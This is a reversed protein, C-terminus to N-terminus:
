RDNIGVRGARRMALEIEYINTENYLKEKQGGLKVSRLYSLRTNQTNKIYASKIYRNEPNVTTYILFENELIELPRLNHSTFILQGKAKEQMVELCEGLLYEYIGSDLEDVVLCYSERNFCAVLNSCISILKKIGASEYLLPIRAGGRLTIIEFQIGDKGNELLKDFANYIELQIEPILAQMVINIQKITNEVYPYIEKAVVNIDTLRLMIGSIRSRVSDSWGINVPIMDLNLALLAYYENEIVSLDYIGYNQLISSYRFIKAADDEAKAFEEQAKRSFLFSGVETRQMEENFYETAQQAIGLAVMSEMNNEYYRYFKKPHFLEKEGRQYDFVPVLRTTKGEVNERVSLKEKSICFSFEGNKLLEVEYEVYSKGFDADAEFCYKVHAMESQSNIYYYFNPPIKKGSFLCKLLVMCDVVVTKGSGNQGYIGLISGKKSRALELRGHKVNKVNDIEIAVLRIMNQKM